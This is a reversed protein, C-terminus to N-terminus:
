AYTVEVMRIGGFWQVNAGIGKVMLKWCNNTTDKQIAVRAASMGGSSTDPATDAVDGGVLAISAANTQRQTIVAPFRWVAFDTSTQVQALVMIDAYVTTYNGGSSAVLLRDAASITGGAGFTGGGSIGGGCGLETQTADTTRGSVGILSQQADGAGTFAGGALSFQGQKNSRAARGAAYSYAQALNNQRGFAAGYNVNSTNQYGFLSPPM